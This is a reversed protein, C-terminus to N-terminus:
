PICFEALADDYSLNRWDGNEGAYGFIALATNAAACSSFEDNMMAIALRLSLKPAAYSTGKNDGQDVTDDGNM